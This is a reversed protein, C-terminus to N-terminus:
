PHEIPAAAASVFASFGDPHSLHAGHGAGNVVWPRCWELEAALTEVSRRHRPAGESGYAALVPAVIRAPDYPKRRGLGDLDGLLARGEMRRQAREAEGLREWSARGVMRCFFWEAAEAPDDPREDTAVGGATAWWNEWPAPSEYVGLSLVLEPYEQAAVLSVISGYSHGVVVSPKDGIVAALDAAHRTVDATAGLELSDGYGRRDYTTTTLEPLRRRSRTFSRGRDLAGHVFVARVRGPRGEREEVALGSVRTTM